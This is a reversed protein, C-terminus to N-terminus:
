SNNLEVDHFLLDSCDRSLYLKRITKGVVFDDVVHNCKVNTNVCNNIYSWDKQWYICNIKYKYAFYRLNAGLVSKRNHLAINSIANITSNTVNLCNWIFKM